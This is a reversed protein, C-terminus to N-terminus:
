LYETTTVQTPVVETVSDWGYFDTGYHSTYHGEVKLYVNHDKFLQVSFWNDGEGGHQQVEEIDGLGLEDLDYEEYAFEEVKMKEKLIEIIEKASLKKIESM